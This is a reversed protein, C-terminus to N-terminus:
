FPLGLMKVDVYYSFWMGFLWFFHGFVLAGFIDIIYAGRLSLVMFTQAALVLLTLIATKFYRMAWFENFIVVLLAIHITFHFDNAM